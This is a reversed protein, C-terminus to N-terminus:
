LFLSSLLWAYADYADLLQCPPNVRKTATSRGLHGLFDTARVILWDVAVARWRKASYAHSSARHM